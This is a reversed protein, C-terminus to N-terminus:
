AAVPQRRERAALVLLVALFLPSGVSAAALLWSVKGFAALVPVGYIFDRRALEDALRSVASKETTVSTFLPGSKTVRMTRVYVFAAALLSAIAASAGLALPWTEDIARSWGVALCSFVAAHVVNDGWFDLVGGLRSEQFKLRALEGDCGDLISHLLFLVAGAIQAGREPSLFFLAGALGLAVSVGTMGNPTMRTGSLARTVALSIRRSLHKALFGDTDKALGRVLWSKAEALRGASPVVFGGGIGLAHASAPFRKVLRAIAAPASGAESALRVADALDDAELVAVDTADSALTGPVLPLSALRRFLAPTPLVRTSVIALRRAAVAPAAGIPLVATGTQELAAAIGDVDGPGALVFPEFGGRRASLVLRAVWPIGLVKAAPDLGAAASPLVLATLV